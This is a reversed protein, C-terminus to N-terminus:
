RLVTFTASACAYTKGNIILRESKAHANQSSGSAYIHFILNASEDTREAADDTDIFIVLATGSETVKFNSLNVDGFTETLNPILLYMDLTESANNYLTHYSENDDSPGNMIGNVWNNVADNEIDGPRLIELSYASAMNTHRDILVGGNQGPGLPSGTQESLAFVAFLACVILISVAAPIIKRKIHTRKIEAKRKM